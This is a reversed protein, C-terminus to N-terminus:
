GRAVSDRDEARVGAAVENRRTTYGRLAHMSTFVEYGLETLRDLEAGDPDLELVVPAGLGVQLGDSWFAEAIALVRGAGDCDISRSVSAVRLRGALQSM